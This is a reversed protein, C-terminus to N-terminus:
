KENLVVACERPLPIKKPPPKKSPMRAEASFWWALDAGCGDGWPVPDQKECNLNGAPCKLRVHFHDAHAYWPRIKQLWDRNSKRNCLVQKVYANVFIRDVEPSRAAAELIQENATSWQVPNVGDSNATLVSNASWNERESSSLARKEAEKALLYWIDVDLGTQHSRHGSLTPGGRPMGLDGILLSGLKQNYTFQGLSEIFNILDPHGFFRKRSLRMVQYGKGNQPLTAGGRLCGSTYRGISEVIAGTTPKLVKSWAQDDNAQALLTFFVGALIILIRSIM